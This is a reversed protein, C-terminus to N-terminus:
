WGAAEILEVNVVAVGEDDEIGSVNALSGLLLARLLCGREARVRSEAWIILTFACLGPKRRTEGNRSRSFVSLDVGLEFGSFIKRLFRPSPTM